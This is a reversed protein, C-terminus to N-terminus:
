LPLHPWMVCQLGHLVHLIDEAHIARVAESKQQGRIRANQFSPCDRRTPSLFLQGRLTTWSTHTRTGARCDICDSEQDSGPADMSLRVQGHWMRHLRTCRRRSWCAPPATRVGGIGRCGCGGHVLEGGGGGAGEDDGELCVQCLPRDDQHAGGDRARAVPKAHRGNRDYKLFKTGTLIRGYDPSGPVNILPLTHRPSEGCCVM